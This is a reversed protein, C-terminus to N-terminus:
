STPFSSQGRRQRADVSGCAAWHPEDTRTKCCARLAAHAEETGVPKGCIVCCPWGFGGSLDVYYCRHMNQMM